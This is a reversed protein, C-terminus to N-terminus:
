LLLLPPVLKQIDPSVLVIGDAFVSGSSMGVFALAALTVAIKSFIRM